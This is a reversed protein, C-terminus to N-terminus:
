TRQPWGVLQMAGSDQGSMSGQGHKKGPFSGLVRVCPLSTSQWGAGERGAWVVQRHTGEAVARRAQDGGQADCLWPVGAAFLVEDHRLSPPVPAGCWGRM